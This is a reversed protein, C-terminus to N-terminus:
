LAGGCVAFDEVANVGGVVAVHGAVPFAVGNLHPFEITLHRRRGGAREEADLRTGGEQQVPGAVFPLMRGIGPRTGRSNPTFEDINCQRLLLRRDPECEQAHFLVAPFAFVVLNCYLGGSIRPDSPFGILAHLHQSNPQRLCSRSRWIPIGGSSCRAWNATSPRSARRSQLLLHAGQKSWQMQQRKCFRKSVVQTV